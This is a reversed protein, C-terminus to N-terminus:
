PATSPRGGPAAGSGSKATAMSGSAGPGGYGPAAAAAAAAAAAPVAEAAAPAAEARGDGHLLPNQDDNRLSMREVEAIARDALEAMRVRPPPLHFLRTRVALLQDSLTTSM